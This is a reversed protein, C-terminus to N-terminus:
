SPCFTLQSTRSASPPRLVSRLSSATSSSRLRTHPHSRARSQSPFRRSKTTTTTALYRLSPVPPLAMRLTPPLSPMAVLFILRSVPKNAFSSSILVQADDHASLKPVISYHSPEGKTGIISPITSVPADVILTVQEIHAPICDIV